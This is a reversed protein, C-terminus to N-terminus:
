HKAQTGFTFSTSDLQRLVSVDSLNWAKKKYKYVQLIKHRYSPTNYYLITFDFPPILTIKTLYRIHHIFTGLDQEVLYIRGFVATM